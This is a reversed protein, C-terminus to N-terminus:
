SEVGRWTWLPTLRETSRCYESDSWGSELKLIIARHPERAMTVETLIPLMDEYSRQM